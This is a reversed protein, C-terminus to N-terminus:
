STIVYNEYNSELAVNGMAERDQQEIGPSQADPLGGLANLQNARSKMSQRSNRPVQEMTKSIVHTLVILPGVLRSIRWNRSESM